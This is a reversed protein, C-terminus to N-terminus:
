VMRLFECDTNVEIFHVAKGNRFASCQNEPLNDTETRPEHVVDCVWNSGPIPNLICPGNEISENARVVLCDNICQERYLSTNTQQALPNLVIFVAVIVFVGTAIMMYANKRQM